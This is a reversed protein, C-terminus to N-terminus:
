WSADVIAQKEQMKNLRETMQAIFAQQDALAKQQDLIVQKLESIASTDEMPLEPVEVPILSFAECEPFITYDVAIGQWLLNTCFTATSYKINTEMEKMVMKSAKTPPNYVFGLSASSGGYDSENFNGYLSLAQPVRSGASSQVFASNDLRFDNNVSISKIHLATSNTSVNSNNTSIDNNTVENDNITPNVNQTTQPYVYNETGANVNVVVPQVPTVEPTVEPTPEPTPEPHYETADVVQASGLLVTTTILALNIKTAQLM